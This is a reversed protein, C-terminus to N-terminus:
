VGPAATAGPPTSPPAGAAAVENGAAVPASPTAPQSVATQGVNTLMFPNTPSGSGNVCGTMTVTENVTGDSGRGSHITTTQAGVAVAACAILTGSLLARTRIM